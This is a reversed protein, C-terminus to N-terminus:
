TTRLKRRSYINDPMGAQPINDPSGAQPIHALEPEVEQPPNRSGSASASPKVESAVHMGTNEKAPMGIGKEWAETAVHSLKRLSCRCGATACFDGTLNITKTGDRLAPTNASVEPIVIDHSGHWVIHSYDSAGDTQSPTHLICPGPSQSPCQEPSLWSMGVGFQANCDGASHTRATKPLCINKTWGWPTEVHAWTDSKVVGDGTHIRVARDKFENEPSKGKIDMGFTAGSDFSRVIPQDNELAALGASTMM